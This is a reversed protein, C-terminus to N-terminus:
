CKPKHIDVIQCDTKKVNDPQVDESRKTVRDVEETEEATEGTEEHQKRGEAPVTFNDTAFIM